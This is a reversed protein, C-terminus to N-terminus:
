GEPWAEPLDVLVRGEVVRVPYVALPEEAPPDLVEGDLLSFRALHLACTITDGMLFGKDLEAYEHSCIGQTAHFTGDANAVLVLHGDVDFSEMTGPAIEDAACLDVTRSAAPGTAGSSDTM